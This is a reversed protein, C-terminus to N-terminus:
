MGCPRDYVSMIAKLETLVRQVQETPLGRIEPITGGGELLAITERVARCGNQCIAEVCAEVRDRDPV